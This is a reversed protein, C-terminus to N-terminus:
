EVLPTVKAILHEKNLTVTLDSRKPMDLLMWRTLREYFQIFERVQQQNMTEATGVGRAMDQEQQWRWLFVQNLSPVQLFVTFDQNFM